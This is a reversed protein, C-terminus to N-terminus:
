KVLSAFFSSGPAFAASFGTTNCSVRIDIYDNYVLSILGTLNVYGYGSSPATYRSQIYAGTLASGNKYVEYTFYNGSM